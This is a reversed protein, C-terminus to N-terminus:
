NRSPYYGDLCICFNVVLFPQRNEHTMTDGAMSVANQNMTVPNQPDTDYYSEGAFYGPYFYGAPEPTPSDSDMSAKVPGHTHAPLQSETLTIGPNGGKTGFHYDSLGPGRGWHVPAQDKLNPLAMTTRGDGGYTTGIVSFLAQNQSIAILAGNCYAWGLPAYSFGFMRVEGIFPDAM